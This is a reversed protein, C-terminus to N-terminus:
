QVDVTIAAPASQVMGDDVVLEFTYSGAAAARFFPTASAPDIAVWPGGVQTWRFRTGGSSARGSLIVLDGALANAPGSAVAVPLPKLGAVEFRVVAPASLTGDTQRVTLAFAYAGPAFPVVTAQAADANRLGAAPGDVQTWAYTLAGAAATSASGDLTAEVEVAATGSFAAAAVPVTGPAPPTVPTVAPPPTADDVVFVNVSKTDTAGAGDTVTLQFAYSGASSPRVTLVPGRAAMAAAPGLTQEWLFQLADANADSSFAGSLLVNRGLQTVVTGGVEALPAVNGVTVQAVTPASAASGCRAIGEFKYVGARRAVFSPALTGAGSLKVPPGLIQRWAPICGAASTASMRAIGPGMQIPAGATLWPRTGDAVLPNTGALLEQRDNVGDGDTDAKRPDTGIAFEERNNLGDGDLDAFADSPDNPNLGHAIEWADPLGDCDADGACAPIGGAGFRDVRNGFTNAVFLDGNVPSVALGSPAVLQGPLDGLQSISGLWGGASNYVQVRGAPADTVFVRGSAAALGTVQGVNSNPLGAKPPRCEATSFQYALGPGYAHLAYAVGSSDPVAAREAVWLLGSAPDFAVGALAQFDRAAITVGLSDPHAPINPVRTAVTGDMAFAVVNSGGAAWLLSRASDWALGSVRAGWPWAFRGVLRSTAADIKFIGASPTAIWAFGGGVAVATAGGPLTLAGKDVGLRTLILLQGDGNVVFQDGYASVAIAKPTAITGTESGQWFALATTVQVSGTASGGANSATVTLTYTGAGDAPATWTPNAIASNAFSGGDATWAYSTADTAVVNVATSGGVLVTPQAASVGTINPAGVVVVIGATDSGSYSTPGLNGILSFCDLVYTCNLTLAGSAGATLQLPATLAALTATTTGDQFTGGTVTAVGSNFSPTCMSSAPTTVSCSGSVLAGANVNGGSDKTLTATTVPSSAMGTAPLALVVAIVAAYVLAKPSM